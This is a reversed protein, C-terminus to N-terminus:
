THKPRFRSKADCIQMKLIKELEAKKLTHMSDEALVKLLNLLNGYKHLGIKPLFKGGGLWNCQTLLGDSVVIHLAESFRDGVDQASILRNLRKAMTQMNNETNLFEELKDLEEKSQIPSIVSNASTGSSIKTTLLIAPSIYMKNENNTFKEIRNSDEKSKSPPIGSFSGTESSIGSISRAESSIESISESKASSGSISETEPINESTMILQISTTENTTSNTKRKRRRCVSKRINRFRLRSKAQYIKTKLIKEFHKSEISHVGDEAVLRLLRQFNVCWKLGIKSRGSAGGLWTCQTLFEVEVIMYLADSLRNATDESYILRSLRKAMSQMNDEANLFEELRYLEEKSKIPIIQTTPSIENIIKNNSQNIRFQHLGLTNKSVNKSRVLREKAHFIKTKLIKEFHKSEISHVGDEAVLRLLRQFNVYWKLGIKLGGSGGGLWSCQALFEVEVIMYLADGLRKAADDGSIIRSLRKAISQMNDENNLFKEMEDLEDKSKVPTFKSNNTTTPTTKTTTPTTRTTQQQQVIQFQKNNNSCNKSCTSSNSNLEKPTCVNNRINQFRLRGEVNFIKSKLLKEFETRELSHVGNEAVLLLLSQVNVYMQLGITPRGIGYSLWSCQALLDDSVVMRLAENLRSVADQAFMLSNLYKALSQMNNEANLFKELRNLEQMTKVPVIVETTQGTDFFPDILFNRHISKPGRKMCVSKRINKFRLLRDKAHFIKSKLLADFKFEERYNVGQKAVLRLLKQLNKYKKLATKPGTKGGGIWSCQTLFKATVVIYLAESFRNAADDASVLGNLHNAMSQMNNEIKLFEELKDLEEQSKVPSIETVCGTDNISDSSHCSKVNRDSPLDKSHVTTTQLQRSSEVHDSFFILPPPSTPRAIARPRGSVTSSTMFLPHKVPVTATSPVVRNNFISFSSHVPRINDVNQKSINQSVWSEMTSYSLTEDSSYEPQHWSKAANFNIWKTSSVVVHDEIEENQAANSEANIGIEEIMFFPDQVTLDTEDIEIEEKLPDAKISCEWSSADHLIEIKLEQMEEDFPEQKITSTAGISTPSPNIGDRQNLSHEM